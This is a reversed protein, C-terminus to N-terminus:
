PTIVIAEHIQECVLRIRSGEVSLQTTPHHAAASAFPMKMDLSARYLMPEEMRISPRVPKDLSPLSAAQRIPNFSLLHFIVRGDTKRNIMVEVNLPAQVVAVPTPPGSLVINRIIQRHEPLEYQNAYSADCGHPLYVCVGKGYRNVVLADMERTYPPHINHSFFHGPFYRKMFSDHLDGFGKATTFRLRHAVGMNLIYHRPDIDRGYPEPLNRLYHTDCDMTAAYDAGFVEALQFNSLKDGFESYLSTDFTAILFGGERVYERFLAAEDASMAAVNPLFVVPYSRLIDANLTEDFIFGVCFHSEVLAKYAGMVPLLFKEQQQRGYYDRNKCSYFIGVHKVPEGGFLDRKESLEAIVGTLRDYAVEDLRGDHFPQDIILNSVGGSLATLLEWRLQSAPKVTFDTVRNMRWSALEAPKGPTLGAVFRTEMGPYMDGLMPTYTEGTSLTSYLSHRVPKQGARWDFNPSAHYNMVVPLGPRLEHVTDRLLQAFREVSRYRFELFQRWTEDWTATTPLEKGTERRFLDRCNACYCSLGGFDMNFMDLHFGSVGYNDAIERIMARAYEAYGSNHCVYKWKGTDTTITDTMPKGDPDLMRWDEHDEAAHNDWIVSYYAMVPLGARAAEDVIEQILDRDGICLHKHGVRTNYYANGYCDKAFFYLADAGCDVVKSVIDAPNINSLISDHWEPTHLDLHIKCQSHLYWDPQPAKPCRAGGKDNQTM